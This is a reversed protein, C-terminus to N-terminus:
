TAGVIQAVSQPDSLYGPEITAVGEAHFWRRVRNYSTFASQLGTESPPQIISTGSTSARGLAYLFHGADHEVPTWDQRGTAFSMVQLVMPSVNPRHITVDFLFDNLYEGRRVELGHKRLNDIVGDLVVGKTIQRRGGGRPAVYARYLTNVTDDFDHVAVPQPETIYLSDQLSERMDKLSALDPKVEGAFQEELGVLLADLLGQERLKQSMTSLPASRVRSLKGESDVLIIALNRAEDRTTDPRWRLVSFYGQQVVKAVM